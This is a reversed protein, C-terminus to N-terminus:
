GAPGQRVRVVAMDDGRGYFGASGDNDSPIDTVERGGFKPLM